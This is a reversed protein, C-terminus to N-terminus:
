PSADRTASALLDQAADERDLAAQYALFASADGTDRWCSWADQADAHASRWMGYAPDLTPPLETLVIEGTDRGQAFFADADHDDM